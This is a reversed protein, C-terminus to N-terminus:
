ERPLKQARVDDRGTICMLTAHLQAVLKRSDGQAAWAEGRAVSLTRGPKIVTGTCTFMEGAAPALLDIKFEATLVEAGAPMLSFAAYGCASDLAAALIGAHLFGHQQTLDSRHALRLEVEGADVRALSVGLARM